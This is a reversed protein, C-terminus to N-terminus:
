PFGNMKRIESCIYNNGKEVEVIALRFENIESTKTVYGKAGFGMIMNADDPSNHLSLAIIKILPNINFIMFIAKAAYTKKIDVNLLVIDPNLKRVSELADLKKIHEDIIQFRKEKSLFNSIAERFLLHSDILLIKIKRKKV